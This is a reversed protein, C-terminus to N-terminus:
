LLRDSWGISLPASFSTRYLSIMSGLSSPERTRSINEEPTSCLSFVLTYTHLSKGPSAWTCFTIFSM